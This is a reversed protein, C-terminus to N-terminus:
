QGLAAFTGDFESISQCLVDIQNSLLMLDTKSDINDQIKVSDLAAKEEKESNKSVVGKNAQIVQLMKKNNRKAQKM